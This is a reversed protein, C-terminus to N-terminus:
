VSEKLFEGITRGIYDIEDDGHVSSLFSAENQAPAMYVGRDLMFQFFRQYTIGDLLISKEVKKKGFFLTFMSGCRQICAEVGTEEIARDIFSALRASKDELRQYFGRKSALRIAACGASMAVPNGSLTGAQYVGGEPALLDMIEARGGFAAAPFGGGIIKGFCTLDAKIQYLKQAGGLSVRFGTVVEDFILLAGSEFTKEQVKKLWVEDPLVVGMNAAVPEIIFAAIKEGYEAFVADLANIDNYSISLTYQVFADPIGLSSSCGSGACVLFQDAHGHYQGSCKVIFNRGTYARALRVASMTAETGTSVFRIKEVSPVAACIKEALEVEVITSGGFTSGLRLASTAAEVVEPHAHGHLLAGWSMSCDIYRKGEVDEIWCGEGKTFLPLEMGVAKGARIPSNVGGPISSRLRKWIKKSIRGVNVERTSFPISM